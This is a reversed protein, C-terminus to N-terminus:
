APAPPDVAGTDLLVKWGASGRRWWSLYRGTSVVEWSGEGNRKEVRYVGRTFGLNWGSFARADIPEWVLRRDPDSFAAGDAARIAEHGQHIEGFLDLRVGDGTFFSTWGEIGRELTEAAFARDAEMLEREVRENREQGAADSPSLTALAAALLTSGVITRLKM